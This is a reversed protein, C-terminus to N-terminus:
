YCRSYKLDKDSTNKIV